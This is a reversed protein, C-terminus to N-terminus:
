PIRRIERQLHELLRLRAVRRGQSLFRLPKVGTGPARSRRSRGPQKLKRRRNGLTGHEHFWAYFAPSFFVVNWGRRDRRAPAIKINAMQGTNSRQSAVERAKAAGVSASRNLARPVAGEHIKRRLADFNNDIKVSSTLKV